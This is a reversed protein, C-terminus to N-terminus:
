VSSRSRPPPHPKKAAKFIVHSSLVLVVKLASALTRFSPLLSFKVWLRTSVGNTRYLSPKPGGTWFLPFMVVYTEAEGLFYPLIQFPTQPLPHSSASILPTKVSHPRPMWHIFAKTLFEVLFAIWHLPQRWETFWGPSHFNFNEASM